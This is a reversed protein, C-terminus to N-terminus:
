LRIGGRMGTPNINITKTKAATRRFIKKDLKRRTKKRIKPSYISNKTLTRYIFNYSVSINEREKLLDLEM